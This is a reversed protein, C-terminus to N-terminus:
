FYVLSVVLVAIVQGIFALFIFVILLQSEWYLYIGLRDLCGPRYLFKKTLDVYCSNPIELNLSTWDSYNTVGCCKLRNQTLDWAYKYQQNNKYSTATQYLTKNITDRFPCQLFVAPVQEKDLKLQKKTLLGMTISASSLGVAFVLIIILLPFFVYNKKNNHAMWLLWFGPLNLLASIFSSVNMMLQTNGETVIVFPMRYIM